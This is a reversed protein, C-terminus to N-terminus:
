TTVINCKRLYPNDYDLFKNWYGKYKPIAIDLWPKMFGSYHIVAAKELEKKGLSTDEGLGLVHWQRDLRVTHNYFVVQDLPLSGAKWLQLRAGRQLWRDYTMTIGQRRWEILNFMNMGFGWLCAKPDFSSLIIPESFNLLMKLQHSSDGDRCTEIASNVKGKMEVRWIERLDRQVVVDHDLLLVKSLYPFIHPLYFRLHSLSSTYRSDQLGAQKFISLWEFSDMNEIHITAPGPTNLLFWMRMAPFNLSDTVVHFIIKEPEKSTSVTSNVVVACALINDSFIAYHYYDPNQINDVLQLEHEEPNLTFFDSTLRMSLCHYGKPITRAAIQTFRLGDNQQKRLKEKSITVKVRLESAEASCDPYAKRIKSLTAEMARIKQLASRSRSLDTHNKGRGLLKEIEKVRSKLERVLKSSSKETPIKLYANAMILQDEMEWIYERTGIQPLSSKNHEGAAEQDCLGHREERTPTAVDHKDVEADGGSGSKLGNEGSADCRDVPNTEDLEKLGEGNDQDIRIREMPDSSSRTPDKVSFPGGLEFEDTMQNVDSAEKDRLGFIEKRCTFVVMSFCVFAMFFTLLFLTSIKM